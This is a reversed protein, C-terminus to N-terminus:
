EISPTSSRLTWRRSSGDRLTRRWAASHQGAAVAIPEWQNLIENAIVVRDTPTPRSTAMSTTAEPQGASMVNTAGLAAMLVFPAAYRPAVSWKNKM